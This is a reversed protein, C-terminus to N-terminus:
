MKDPAMARVLMLEPRAALVKESFWMATKVSEISSTFSFAPTDM